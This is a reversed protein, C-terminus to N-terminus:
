PRWIDSPFPETQAVTERTLRLERVEVLDRYVAEVPIQLDDREIRLHQVVTGQRSVEVEDIRGESLHYVAEDGGPLGYRLLLGDGDREAGLLATGLGPRFVGLTSWLLNAPPLVQPPLDAPIRLDDDVLAARGAPENNDLFLDLRAKYPPEMRAAGRGSIRVGQEMMSWEFVVRLPVELQEAAELRTAVQQANVPPEIVVVQRPGCALVAGAAAVLLAQVM